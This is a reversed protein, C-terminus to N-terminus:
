DGESSKGPWVSVATYEDDDNMQGKLHFWKKHKPSYINVMGTDELLYDDENRKDNTYKLNNDDLMSSLIAKVKQGNNPQDLVIKAATVKESDDDSGVYYRVESNGDSKLTYWLGDNHSKFASKKFNKGLWYQQTTESSSAASTKHHSGGFRIFAGGILFVIVTLLIVQRNTKHDEDGKSPSTVIGLFTIVSLVMLIWGILKM